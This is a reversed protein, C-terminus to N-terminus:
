NHSMVSRFVKIKMTAARPAKLKSFLLHIQTMFNAIFLLYINGTREDSTQKIYSGAVQKYLCPIAVSLIDKPPKAVHTNSFPNLSNSFNYVLRSAFQVTCTTPSFTYVTNAPRVM